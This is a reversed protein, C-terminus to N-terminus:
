AGIQWAGWQVALSPVGAHRVGRAWSELEANAAAYSGQGPSGLLAAASSYLAAHHLPQAHLLSGRLARMSATKPAAAARVARATQRGLVADALVGGSNVMGFLPPAPHIGAADSWAGTDASALTVCAACDLLRSPRLVGSGSARRATPRGPLPLDIGRCGRTAHVTCFNSVTGQLAHM